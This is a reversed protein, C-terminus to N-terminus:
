IFSVKSCSEDKKWLHLFSLESLNLWKSLIVCSARSLTLDWVWAASQHIRVRVWWVKHSKRQSWQWVFCLLSSLSLEGKKAKSDPKFGWMFILLQTVWTNSSTSSLPFFVLLRKSIEQCDAFNPNFHFHFHIRETTDREKRGWSSYGVLSGQGHSKGPLHVSTPSQERRISALLM